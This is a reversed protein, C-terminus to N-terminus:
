VEALHEFLDFLKFQWYGLTELIVLHFINEITDEALFVLVFLLKDFIFLHSWQKRLQMVFEVIAFYHYSLAKVDRQLIVL